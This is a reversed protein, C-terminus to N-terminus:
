CETLKWEDCFPKMAYAFQLFDERTQEVKVNNNHNTAFGYENSLASTYYVNHGETWYALQLTVKTAEM